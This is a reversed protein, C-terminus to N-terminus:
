VQGFVTLARGMLDDYLTVLRQGSEAQRLAEMISVMEDGTSVNSAELMGQRVTPADMPAVAADAVKFMGGDAYAMSQRDKVDVIALRARAEGDELVTGDALVQMAAGQLTLDGGSQAQLAYGQATVVRGDGDRRFQGQRTYLLGEPSRVCFFGDGVIALDFPNSTNIPKGASFDTSVSQDTTTAGNALISAFSVRRKYGPTTINSLNQASVEVRRETRALIVSAVDVFGGM